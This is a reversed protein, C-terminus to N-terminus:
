AKEPQELKLVIVSGLERVRMPSYAKSPQEEITLSVDSFAVGGEQPVLAKFSIFLHCQM